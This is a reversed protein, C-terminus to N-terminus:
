NKNRRKKYLKLKEKWDTPINPVNIAGEIPNDLDMLVMSMLVVLFSSGFVVSFGSVVTEHHFLYYSTIVLFSIFYYAIKVSMAMEKTAEVIFKKFDKKAVTEDVKKWEEDARLLLFAGLFTWSVFINLAYTNVAVESTKLDKNYPNILFWFLVFSLLGFLVPKLFFYVYDKFKLM